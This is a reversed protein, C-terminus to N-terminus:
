RESYIEIERWAVWSPSEVTEIKIYRINELVRFPAFRLIDFMQTFGHFEKILRYESSEDDKIWIRHKTEGDPDQDIILEIRGITSPAGLDLEIWQPPHTGAIWATDIDGDIAYNAPNGDFSQSATATAYLGINRTFDAGEGEYMNRYFFLGGEMRGVFFDMDDDNDIDALFPVNRSNGGANMGGFNESRLMFEHSTPSGTNEYFLLSGWAEGVFLDQDGDHDIDSFRYFFDHSTIPASNSDTLTDSTESFSMIEPTGENRFVVINFQSELDRTKVLLDLDNDGDIDILSPHLVDKFTGGANALKGMPVFDPESASGDNRYHYLEWNGGFRGLILDYDGDNDLDGWAPFYGVNDPLFSDSRWHFSSDINEYFHLQRDRSGVFLDLDNDADIDILSPVSYFGVDIFDLPLKHTVLQFDPASPTGENLYFSVYGHNSGFFLDFDSDNDIDVFVPTIFDILNPPSIYASDELTFQYTSSSGVNRYFILANETSGVFLDKDGDNDIDVFAPRVGWYGHNIIEGSVDRLIDVFSFHSTSTEDHQYFHIGNEYSGILLDAAGDNNLDSFTPAAGTGVDIDDFFDTILVFNSDSISGENRYLHIRGSSDGVFLDPREDKDIDHFAMMVHNRGFNMGDNIVGVFDFEGSNGDGANRYFQIEGQDQGSVFLDYDGDNDYDLLAISLNNMGGIWPRNLKHGNRFVGISDYEQQFPQDHLNPSALAATTSYIGIWLCVFPLVFLTNNSHKM